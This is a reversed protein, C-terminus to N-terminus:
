RAQAAHFSENMMRALQENFVISPRQEDCLRSVHARIAIQKGATLRGRWRVPITANLRIEVGLM